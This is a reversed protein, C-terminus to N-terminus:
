FIRFSSSPMCIEDVFPTMKLCMQMWTSHRNFNNQIDMTRVNHTFQQKIIFNCIPSNTWVTWNHSFHLLSTSVKHSSKKGHVQLTIHQYNISALFIEFFLEKSFPIVYKIHICKKMPKMTSLNFALLHAGLFHQQKAYMKMSKYEVIMM